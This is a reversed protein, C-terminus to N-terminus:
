IRTRGSTQSDLEDLCNNVGIGLRSDAFPGCLIRLNLWLSKSLKVARSMRRDSRM